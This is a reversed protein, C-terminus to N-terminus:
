ISTQNRRAYILNTSKALPIGKHHKRLRLFAQQGMKIMEQKFFEFIELSVFIKDSYLYHALIYKISFYELKM